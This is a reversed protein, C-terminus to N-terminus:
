HSHRGAVAGQRLMLQLEEWVERDEALVSATRWLARGLYLEESNSLGLRNATMHIQSTAVRRRISTSVESIERALCRTAIIDWGPSALADLEIQLLRCFTDRQREFVRDGEEVILKLPKGWAAVPYSVLALFEETDQALGLALRALLRFIRPSRRPWSDSRHEAIFRLCLTSSFTFFELSAGLLDYGGYRTIEPQFPFARVSNDPCVLDYKENPDTALISRNTRRISEEDLSETSPRQAFFERSADEVATEVEVSCGPLPRLRLRIHPGGLAYRVFFFLDIRRASLLESVLPWVLDLLLRDRDAHYFLHFSLWDSLRPDKM